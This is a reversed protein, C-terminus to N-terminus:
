SDRESRSAHLRRAMALATAAEEDSDTVLARALLKRVKPDSLLREGSDRESRSVGGAARLQEEQFEADSLKRMREAGAQFAAMREDFDRQWKAERRERARKRRDRAAQDREWGDPDRERARQGAKRCAPACYQQAMGSRILGGLAKGCARCETYTV